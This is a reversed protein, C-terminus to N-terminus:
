RPQESVFPRRVWRALTAFLVRPEVPKTVFDNMGAAFCRHQDEDLANATMAVVPLQALTSDSRIWRTVELGDAEPMQVDMLVGDFSESRLLNMAERGNAAVRVVAGVSELLQTAVLQNLENDEALLIRAGALREAANHGDLPRAADPAAAPDAKGFRATFWFNSGQEAASQVGVEGGMLGVLQKSIALGLGTGGFRRTTSNDAQQFAQFLKNTADPALGIGTDHVDVRVTCEGPRDDVVVGVKVDIRGAETFKIANTVYNILVQTVRFPDGILPLTAARDIDFSLTLGKAEALEGVQDKVLQALETFTFRTRELEIMGAEIKSMDLIDNILSLLHSGSSQIKELYDRQKADQATMLAVHALGIVSNLPTRIEHSMNALFESKAENAANAADTALALDRTRAEVRAELEAERQRLMRETAILRDREGLLLGQRTAAMIVVVGGGIAVTIGTAETTGPLSSAVIGGAAVLVLLLPLLRLMGECRRDWRPDPVPELQYGYIGLGILVAVLSFSINLWDGDGLRNSLFRLNWVVWCVTFAVSSIPLLLSRWSLRARLTLLLIAGLCAPAMLGLPYAGMVLVQFLSYSGQNPLFLAMTAALVAVLFAAADLRATRWDMWTLRHRGIKWMGVALAPGLALFFADSPGPFPLWGFWVQVDWILQGLTLSLMGGLFWAMTARHPTHRAAAYGGWALLAGAAYGSTWHINDFLVVLPGHAARAGICGVLMLGILAALAIRFPRSEVKAGTGMSVTLCIM